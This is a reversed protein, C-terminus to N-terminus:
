YGLLRCLGAPSAGCVDNVVAVGVALVVIGALLSMLCACGCGAPFGILAQLCSSVAQLIGSFVQVLLPALFPLVILAVLGGLCCFAALAIPELGTM